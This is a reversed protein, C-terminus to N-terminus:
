LYSFNVNREVLGNGEVALQAASKPKVRESNTINGFPDLEFYQQPRSSFPLGLYNDHPEFKSNGEFYGPAWGNRYNMENELYYDKATFGAQDRIMGGSDGGTWRYLMADENENAIMDLYNAEMNEAAKWYKWLVLLIVIILIAFVIKKMMKQGRVLDSIVPPTRNDFLLSLILLSHFFYHQRVRVSDLRLRPHFNM